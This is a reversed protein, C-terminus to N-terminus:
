YPMFALKPRNHTQTPFQTSYPLKPYPTEQSSLLTQNLIDDPHDPTELIAVLLHFQRRCCHGVTYREDCNYCLGKECRVQLEAPSFWKVPPTTKPTTATTNPNTTISLAPKPTTRANNHTSLTDIPHRQLSISPRDNHKEEQLKALSIAYSLSIPQFAQVERRISPKLGSIFCSLFFQPPLGVIRNALAEFEAQYDKVSNSFHGKPTKMSHPHSYSNWHTFFRLGLSSNAM